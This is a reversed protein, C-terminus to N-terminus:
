FNVGFRSLLFVGCLWFLWWWGIDDDEFLEQLSCVASESSWFRLSISRRARSCSRSSCSSNCDKPWWSRAWLIERGPLEEDIADELVSPFPFADTKDVLRDTSKWFTIDLIDSTWRALISEGMENVSSKKFGINLVRRGKGLHWAIGPFVAIGAGEALFVCLDRLARLNDGDFEILSHPNEEWTDEEHPEPGALSFNLSSSSHKQIKKAFKWNFSYSCGSNLNSLM